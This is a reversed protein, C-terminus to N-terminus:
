ARPIEFRTEPRRTGPQPVYGGGGDTFSLIDINEATNTMCKDKSKTPGDKDTRVESSRRMDTDMKRALCTVVHVAPLWICKRRKRLSSKGDARTNRKEKLTAQDPCERKGEIATLFTQPM